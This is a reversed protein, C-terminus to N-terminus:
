EEKGKKSLLVAEATFADMQHITVQNETVEINKVYFDDQIKFGSPIAVEIEESPHEFAHCVILVADDTKRVVVQTGEPYRTNRGRNGM